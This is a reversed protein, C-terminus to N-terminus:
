NTKAHSTHSPHFQSLISKKAVNLPERHQFKPNQQWLTLQVHQATEMIMGTIRRRRRSGCDM